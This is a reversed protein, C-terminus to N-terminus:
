VSPFVLVLRFGINSIRLTPTDSDRYAPRCYRAYYSWGGGRIMRYQGEKRNCPDFVVGQQQCEEYFDDSYWDECWEWVNGSMDYLDLLNPMKLGVPETEGHSNEDYWGVENLKDGGAFEFPFAKWYKGGRAAYEWEAETPLRYKRGTRGYLKKLFLQADEWSVNEVPRTKGKFSSPNSGMITEWVEQTVPYEGMWFNNLRVKHIDYGDGGMDFPESDINGEVAIMKFPAETKEFEIHDKM